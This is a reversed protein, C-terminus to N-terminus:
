DVCITYNCFIDIGGECQSPIAFELFPPPPPTGLALFILLLYLALNSNGSPLPSPTKSFIGEMPSTHINEPVVTCHVVSFLKIIYSIM